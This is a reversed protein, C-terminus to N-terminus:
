RQGFPEWGEKFEVIDFQKELKQAYFKERAALKFDRLEEEVETCIGRSGTLKLRQYLQLVVENVDRPAINALDRTIVPTLKDATFGNFSDREAAMLSISEIASLSSLGIGDELQRKGKDPLARWRNLVFNGLDVVFNRISV